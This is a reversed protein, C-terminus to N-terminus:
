LCVSLCIQSLLYVRVYRLWTRTFFVDFAWNLNKLNKFVKITYNLLYVNHEFKTQSKHSEDIELLIHISHKETTDYQRPRSEAHHIKIYQHSAIYFTHPETKTKSYCQQWYTAEVQSVWNWFLRECSCYLSWYDSVSCLRLVTTCYVFVAFELETILSYNNPRYNREEIRNNHDIHTHKHAYTSRHTIPRISKKQLTCHRIYPLPANPSAGRADCM